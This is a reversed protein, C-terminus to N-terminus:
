SQRVWQGSALMQMQRKARRPTQDRAWDSDLGHAAAGDYDGLELSRMFNPWHLPKEGLQFCMSILVAKRVEDLQAFRPFRAASRRAQLADHAFQVAIADDCLGAGPVSRDVLCGIGITWLGRTDQYACSERGEEEGVLVEALDTM